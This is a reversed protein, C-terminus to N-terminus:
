AREDSATSLDGTTEQNCSENEAGDHDAFFSKFEQEVKREANERALRQEDSLVLRQFLAWDPVQERVRDWMEQDQAILVAGDWLRLRMGFMAHIISLDGPRQYLTVLLAEPFEDHWYISGFPILNVGWSCDSRYVLASLVSVAEESLMM